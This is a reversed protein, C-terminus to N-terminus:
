VAMKMRIGVRCAVKALPWAKSLQLVFKVFTSKSNEEERVWPAGHCLKVLGGTITPCNLTSVM